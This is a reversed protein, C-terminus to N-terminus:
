GDIRIQSWHSGRTSLRRNGHTRHVAPRRHAYAWWFNTSVGYARFASFIRTCSSVICLPVLRSCSARNLRALFFLAFWFTGVINRCFSTFRPRPIRHSEISLHTSSRVVASSSPTSSSIKTPYMWSRTVHGSTQGMSRAASRSPNRPSLASPKTSSNHLSSTSAEDLGAPTGRENM